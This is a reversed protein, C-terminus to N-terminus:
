RRGAIIDAIPLYCDRSTMSKIQVVEKRKEKQPLLSYYDQQCVLFTESEPVLDGAYAQVKIDTIGKERLVRRLLAAGMASSGMGGDCVIAVSTIPMEKKM